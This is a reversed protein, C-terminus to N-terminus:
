LIDFQSQWERAMSDLKKLDSQVSIWNGLVLNPGVRKADSKNHPSFYYNAKQTHEFRGKFDLNDNEELPTEIPIYCSLINKGIVHPHHNAAKRIGRGLEDMIFIPDWSRRLFRIIPMMINKRVKPDLNQGTFVFALNNPPILPQYKVVFRPFSIRGFTHNHDMCNHIFILEPTVKKDFSLSWGCGVFIIRKQVNNYPLTKFEDTAMKAIENCATDFHTAKLSHWRKAFWDISSEGHITALGSFSFSMQKEVYVMKATYDNLVFSGQTIRSDVAQITFHPTLLSAVLTLKTNESNGNIGVRGAIRWVFDNIKRISYTTQRDMQNKFSIM